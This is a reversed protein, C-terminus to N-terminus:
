ARPESDKQSALAWTRAEALAALWADPGADSPARWDGRPSLSGGSGVKPGNPLASRKFQSSGFFRRLFVELWDFVQAETYAPEPGRAFAECALFAIKAPSYGRRTLYYLSFDHLEFPGIVDETVQAPEAQDDSGPVLEPSIPTDLVDRLVQATAVKCESRDAVWGILHRILTKPVSANVNYHSMQDGVGYTCWGLALESLDGTGVVLAQHQGALRFLHSTREGAQVNEFTVDFVHEGRAFPHDLDRLMQMCSPGIDLEHASVGLAEMLSSAQARTRQSTAFGPMSYALVNTRPLSLRDMARAAVILAQTSDLGGSVGIVVRETGTAALRQALASVQIQYVEECHEKRTLTDQPVFPHREIGRELPVAAERPIFRVPVERVPGLNERHDTACDGFSTMRAREQVLRELDIDAFVFQSNPSYRESRTLLEGNEFVMACGDWAMDTTSEGSGAGAYVYAALCRASQNALLDHRYADKGVTINSASLNALVTAGSMAARVSPPQPVWLDECLEVALCLEPRERDRFILDNGFPVEIGLVRTSDKRADRAASFQRREYYERYSPLYSKVVVGLPRGGQLVVACNFLRDFRLLPLGVVCLASHKATGEAVFGLAEEAADLITQQQVLDDISYGTLCMEPFVVLASGADAAHKFLRVIERANTAPDALEVRPVAAAVRVMGHAYLDNFSREQSM